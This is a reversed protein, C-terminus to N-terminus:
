GIAGLLPFNFQLFQVTEVTQATLDFQAFSTKGSQLSAMIPGTPVLGVGPLNINVSDITLSIGTIPLSVSEGRSGGGSLIMAVGLLALGRTVRHMEREKMVPAPHNSPRSRHAIFM